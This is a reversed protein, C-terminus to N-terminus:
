LGGGEVLISHYLKQHEQDKLRLESVLGELSAVYLRHQRRSKFLKNIFCLPAALTRITMIVVGITTNILAILNSRCSLLEAKM